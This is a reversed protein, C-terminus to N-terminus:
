AAKSRRRRGTVVEGGFDDCTGTNRCFWSALETIKECFGTKYASQGYPFIENGVPPANERGTPRGM